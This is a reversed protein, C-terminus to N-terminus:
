PNTRTLGRDSPVEEVSARRRKKERERVWSLRLASACCRENSYRSSTFRLNLRGDPWRPGSLWANRDAKCSNWFVSPPARATLICRQFSSVIASPENM